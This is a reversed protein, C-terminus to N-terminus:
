AAPTKKVARAAPAGPAEAAALPETPTEVSSAADCSEVVVFVPDRSLRALHEPDDIPWVLGTRTNLLLTSAM